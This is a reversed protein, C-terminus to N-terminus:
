AFADSAAASSEFASVPAASSSSKAMGVAVFRELHGINAAARARHRMGRNDDAANWAPPYESYVRSLSGAHLTTLTNRQVGKSRVPQERKISRTDTRMGRSRWSNRGFASSVRSRQVIWPVRNM